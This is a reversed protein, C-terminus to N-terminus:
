DDFFGKTKKPAGEAPKEVGKIQNGLKREKPAVDDFFDAGKKEAEKEMPAPEPEDPRASQDVKQPHYYPAKENGLECLCVIQGGQTAIYVRDTIQNESFVSYGRIPLSGVQAGDRRNLIIMNEMRDVAYLNQQSAALLRTVRADHWRETGSLRDVKTGEDKNRIAFLGAQEAVVFVDDIFPIPKSRIPYGAIFRWRMKGTRVDLAYVVSDRTGAYLEKELFALPATFSSESHFRYYHSRRDRSLAYIVGEEDAIVVRDQLVVPPVSLRGRTRAFWVVPRKTYIRAFDDTLGIAELTQDSTPVYVFEATAAVGASAEADMVKRWNERGTALDIQCLYPGAAAYVVNGVVEPDYCINGDNGVKVSWHVAGTQEDLCHIKGYDTMVFVYGRNAIDTSAAPKSLDVEDDGLVAEEQAEDGEDKKAGDTKADKKGAAKKPAPAAKKPKEEVDAAAKGPKAAAKGAPDIVLPKEAAKKAKVELPKPAIVKIAVVRERNKLLEVQSFWPRGLGRQALETKDPIDAAHGVLPILGIAVAVMAGARAAGVIRGATKGFTRNM